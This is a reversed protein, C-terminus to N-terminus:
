TQLLESQATVEVTETASGVTLAVNRAVTENVRVNFAAVQAKNFGSLEVTLTYPGPRVNVFTFYGSHDTQRESRVNTAPNALTVTAGPVVAGTSDTVTGNVTGMSTQALALGPAVLTAVVLLVTAKGISM